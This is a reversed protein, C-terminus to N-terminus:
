DDFDIESFRGGQPAKPRPGIGSREFRTIIWPYFVGFGAGSFWLINWVPKVNLLFLIVLVGIVFRPVRINLFLVWIREHRFVVGFTALVACIIGLSGLVVPSGKAFAEPLMRVLGAAASMILYYIVFRKTGWERELGSGFFLLVLLTCILTGVWCVSPYVMPHTVLQWLHLRFFVKAPVLGLFFVIRTAADKPSMVCILYGLTHLILLVTVAPTFLKWGRFEPIVMLNRREFSSPDEMGM